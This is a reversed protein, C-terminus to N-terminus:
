VLTPILGIEAFDALLDINWCDPGTLLERVGSFAGKPSNGRTSFGQQYVTCEELNQDLEHTKFRQFLGIMFWAFQLPSL